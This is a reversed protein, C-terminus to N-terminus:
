KEKHISWFDLRFITCSFVEFVYINNRSKGGSFSEWFFAAVRVSSPFGGAFTPLHCFRRWIITFFPFINNFPLRSNLVRSESSGHPHRWCTPLEWTCGLGCPCSPIQSRWEGASGSTQERWLQLESLSAIGLVDRNAM